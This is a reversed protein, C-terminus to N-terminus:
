SNLGLADIVESSFMARGDEDLISERAAKWRDLDPGFAKPVWRDNVPFRKGWHFTHPIDEAELRDFIKDYIGATTTFFVNDWPCFLDVIATTDYKTFALTASSKKSYRIRFNCPM